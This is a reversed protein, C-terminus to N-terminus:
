TLAKERRALQAMFLREGYRASAEGARSGARDGRRRALTM